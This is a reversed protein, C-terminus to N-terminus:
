FAVRLGLDLARQRYRDESFHQSYRAFGAWGNAWQASIGFALQGFSNDERDAPMLFELISLGASPSRDGLFRVVAPDADVGSINIWSLDFFPLYVGNQGSIAYNGRLGLSARTFNEEQDGVVLAWGAGNSDPSRSRESYGDTESDVFELRLYPSFNWADRQIQFGATLALLRDDSDFSADYGQSVSSTSISYNIRRVQDHDRRNFALMSDVYFGTASQWSAYVQVGLEDTDTSGSGGTFDIDSRGITVAAGVLASASLRRDVGITLARGDRQFGDENSSASRKITDFRANAYASWGSEMADGSLQLAVLVEDPGYLFGLGGQSSSGQRIFFNGKGAMSRDNPITANDAVIAGLATRVNSDDAFAAGALANCDAQLRDTLRNGAFCLVGIARALERGPASNTFQNLQDVVVNQAAVPGVMSMALACILYPKVRSM